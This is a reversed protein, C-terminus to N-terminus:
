LIYIYIYIYISQNRYIKISKLNQKNKRNQPLTSYHARTSRRPVGFGRLLSKDAAGYEDGDDADGGDNDCRREETADCGRPPTPTTATM